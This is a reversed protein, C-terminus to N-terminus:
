NQGFNRGGLPHQRQPVPCKEELDEPSISHNLTSAYLKKLNNQKTIIHGVLHELQDKHKNVHRVFPAMKKKRDSPLIGGLFLEERGAAIEAQILYRSKKSYAQQLDDCDQTIEWVKDEFALQAKEIIKQEAEIHPHSHNRKTPNEIGTRNPDLPTGALLEADTLGGSKSSPNKGTTGCSAIALSLAILSPKVLASKKFEQFM